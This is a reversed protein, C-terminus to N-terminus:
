GGGNLAKTSIAMVSTMALRLDHLDGVLCLNDKVKEAPGERYQHEGSGKKQTCHM